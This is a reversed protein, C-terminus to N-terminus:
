GELRDVAKTGELRRTKRADSASKTRRADNVAVDKFAAVCADLEGFDPRLRSVGEVLDTNEAAKEALRSAAVALEQAPEALTQPVLLAIRVAQVEAAAAHERVQALRAAMEDGHYDHNNAVQTRLDEVARMLKVCARRMDSQYREQRDRGAQLASQVAISVQPIAAGLVAASATIVAVSLPVDTMYANNGRYDGKRDPAHCRASETAPRNV